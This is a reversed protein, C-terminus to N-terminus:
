VGPTELLILRTNPEIPVNMDIKWRRTALLHYAVALSTGKALDFQRDCDAAIQRLSQGGTMVARTLWWAIHEGEIDDTFSVRDSIDCYERLLAANRVLKRPIQADTVVAWDIERASWYRREIELRAPLRPSKLCTEKALSRARLVTGSPTRITLVFDTAIVIPKNLKSSKPHRLGHNRAIATTEELELPYQERIDVVEQSWEQMLFFDRHFNSFLHHMRNTKASKMRTVLGISSKEQIRNWPRYDTGSGHGRGEKERQIIMKDPDVARRKAMHNAFVEKRFM